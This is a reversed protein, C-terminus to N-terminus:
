IGKGTAELTPRELPSGLYDLHRSLRRVHETLPQNEVRSVMPLSYFSDEASVRNDCYRGHLSIIVILFPICTTRM